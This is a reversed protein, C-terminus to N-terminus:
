LQRLGLAELGEGALAHFARDIALGHRKAVRLQDGVHLQVPPPEALHRVLATVLALRDHEDNDLAPQRSKDANGVRDLLRRGFGQSRKM